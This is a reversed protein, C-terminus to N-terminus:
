IWKKKFKLNKIEMYNLFFSSIILIPPLVMFVLAYIIIISSEPYEQGDIGMFFLHM